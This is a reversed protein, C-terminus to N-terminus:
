FLHEFFYLIFICKKVFPSKAFPRADLGLDVEFFTFVDIPTHDEGLLDYKARLGDIKEWIHEM